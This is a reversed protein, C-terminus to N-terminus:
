QMKADTTGPVHSQTPYKLYQFTIYALFKYEAEIEAETEAEKERDRKLVHVSHSHLNKM